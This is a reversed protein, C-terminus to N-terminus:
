TSFIFCLFESFFNEIKHSNREVKRKKVADTAIDMLEQMDKVFQPGGGMGEEDFVEYNGLTQAIRENIEDLKEQIEKNRRAIKRQEIDLGYVINLYVRSSQFNIGQLIKCSSNIEQM